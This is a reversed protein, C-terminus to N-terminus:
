LEGMAKLCLNYLEERAIDGIKYLDCINDFQAQFDELSMIDSKMIIGVYLVNM